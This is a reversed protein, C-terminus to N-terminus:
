GAVTQPRDPTGMGGAEPGCYVFRERGGCIPCVKGSM